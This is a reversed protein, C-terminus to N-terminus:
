GGNAALIGEGQRAALWSKWKAVAPARELPTAQPNFGFDDGTAERLAQVCWGRAWASDDELGNILTGIESWDGLRVFTRAREFQLARDDTSPWDLARLPEVLRADHTAGLAAVASAAVDPRPDTCLKLLTPYAPEGCNAFWQIQEVREVGHTWPLRKVQDEIQDRL